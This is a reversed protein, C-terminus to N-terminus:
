HRTICKLKGSELELSFSQRKHGMTNKEKTKKGKKRASFLLQMFLKLLIHKKHGKKWQASNILVRSKHTYAHTNNATDQPHSVNM